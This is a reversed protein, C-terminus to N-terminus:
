CSMVQVGCTFLVIIKKMEHRDKRKIRAFAANHSLPINRQMKHATAVVAYCLITYIFEIAENQTQRKAMLRIRHKTNQPLNQLSFIFIYIHAHNQSFTCCLSCKINFSHGFSLDFSKLSKRLVVIIVLGLYQGYSVYKKFAISIEYIEWTECAM